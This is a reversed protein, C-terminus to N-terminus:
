RVKKKKGGKSVQMHSATGFALLAGLLCEKPSAALSNAYMSHRSIANLNDVKRQDDIDDGLFIYGYNNSLCITQM